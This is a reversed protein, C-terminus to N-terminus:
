VLEKKPLLRADCFYNWNLADITKRIPLPVVMNDNSELNFGNEPMIPQNKFTSDFREKVEDDQIVIPNETSTKSSRTRKHSTSM